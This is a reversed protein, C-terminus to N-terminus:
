ADLIMNLFDRLKITNEKSLECEFEFVSICVCSNLEYADLDNSSCEDKLTINKDVM